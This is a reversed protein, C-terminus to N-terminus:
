QPKTTTCSCMFELIEIKFRVYRPMVTKVFEKARHVVFARGHPQWSIVHSLGENDVEELLFYLVSTFNKCETGCAGETSRQM